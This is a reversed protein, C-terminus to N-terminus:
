SVGCRDQSFHGENEVLDVLHSSRVLYGNAPGVAPDHLNVRADIIMSGFNLWKADEGAAPLGSPRASRAVSRTLCIMMERREGLDLGCRDNNAPCGKIRAMRNRHRHERSDSDTAGSPAVM